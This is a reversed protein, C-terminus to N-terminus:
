TCKKKVCTSRGDCHVSVGLKCCKCKFGNRDLGIVSPHLCCERNTCDLDHKSKVQSTCYAINAITTACGVCRGKIIEIEKANREVDKNNSAVLANMQDVPYDMPKSM